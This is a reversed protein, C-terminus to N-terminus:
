PSQEEKERSAEEVKEGAKEEEKTKEEGAKEEEKTKEEGFLATAQALYYEAVGLRGEKVAKRALAVLRARAKARVAKSGEDAIRRLRAEAEAIMEDGRTKPEVRRAIKAVRNSEAAAKEEVEEPLMEQEAAEVENDALLDKLTRDPRTAEERERLLTELERVNKLLTEYDAKKLEEAALAAEKAKMDASAKLRKERAMELEVQRTENTAEARRAEAEAALRRDKAAAAEAEAKRRNAEATKAEAEAKKRAEATKKEEAKTQDLKLREGERAANKAAFEKESAEKRLKEAEKKEKAEMAKAHAETAAAQKKQTQLRLEATKANRANCWAWTGCVLACITLLIYVLNKM